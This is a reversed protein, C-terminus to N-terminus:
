KKAKAEYRGGAQHVAHAKKQPPQWGPGMKEVPYPRRGLISAMLINVGSAVEEQENDEHLAAMHRLALKWRSSSGRYAKLMEAEDPALDAGLAGPNEADLAPHLLQWPELGLGAALAELSDVTAPFDGREIRGVSTQDIPRGKVKAAAAVAPQSMRKAKRVALANAAVVDKLPKNKPVSANDAELRPM